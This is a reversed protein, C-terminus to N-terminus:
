ILFGDNVRSAGPLVFEVTIQAQWVPRPQGSPLVWSFPSMPACDFVRPRAYLALGLADIKDRLWKCAYAYNKMSDRADSSVQIGITITVSAEGVGYKGAGATVVFLPSRDATRDNSPEPLAHAYGTLDPWLEALWATLCEVLENATKASRM